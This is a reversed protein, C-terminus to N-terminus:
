GIGLLDIAAHINARSFDRGLNSSLDAMVEDIHDIGVVIHGRSTKDFQGISGDGVRQRAPHRRNHGSAGAQVHPGPEVAQELAGAAIRSQAGPQAGFGLGPATREDQPLAQSRDIGIDRPTDVFIVQTADHASQLDVLEGTHRHAFM